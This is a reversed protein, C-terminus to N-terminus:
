IYFFTIEDNTMNKIQINLMIDESNHYKQKDLNLLVSFPYTERCDTSISLMIVACIVSIVTYYFRKM